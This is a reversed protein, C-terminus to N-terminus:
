DFGLKARAGRLHDLLGSYIQESGEELDKHNGVTEALEQKETLSDLETHCKEKSEMPLERPSRTNQNWIM